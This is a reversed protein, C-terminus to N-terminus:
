NLEDLTEINAKKICIMLKSKLSDCYKNNNKDIENEEEENYKDENEDDEDDNNISATLNIKENFTLKNKNKNKVKNKQKNIELCSAKQRFIDSFYIKFIYRNNVLENIYLKELLCVDDSGFYKKSFNFKRHNYDINPLSIISERMINDLVQNANNNNITNNNTISQMSQGINYLDYKYEENLVFINIKFNMNYKISNKLFLLDNEIIDVSSAYEINDLVLNNSIEVENLNIIDGENKGTEIVKNTDNMILKAWSQFNINYSFTIPNRYLVIIKNYSLYRINFIGIILPLFSFSFNEIKDMLYAKYEVIFSKLQKSNFFQEDYIEFSLLLDNTYYNNYSENKLKEQSFKSFLDMNDSINLSKIIDKVNLNLYPNLDFLDENTLSKISFKIEDDNININNQNLINKKLNSFESYNNLLSEDKEKITSITNSLINNDEINKNLNNYIHKKFYKKMKKDEINDTIEDFSFKKSSILKKKNYLTIKSINDIKEKINYVFSNDRINVNSAIGISKKLNISNYTMNFKNRTEEDFSIISNRTNIIENKNNISPIVNDIKSIRRGENKDLESYINKNTKFYLYLLKYIIFFNCESYEYKLSGNKNNDKDKDKNKNKDIREDEESSEESSELSSSSESISENIILEKIDIDSDDKFYSNFNIKDIQNKKNYLKQNNKKIKGNGLYFNYNKVCFLIAFIKEIYGIMNFDINLLMIGFLYLYLIGFIITSYYYLDVYSILNSENNEETKIKELIFKIENIFKTQTHFIIGPFNLLIDCINKYFYHKSIMIIKDKNNEFKKQEINNHSDFGKRYDLFNKYKKSIIFYMIACIIMLSIQFASIFHSIKIDDKFKNKIYFFSAMEIIIIGLHKIFYYPINYICNVENSNTKKKSNNIALLLQLSYFINLIFQNAFILPYYLFIQDKIYAIKSNEELEFYDLNKFLSILLITLLILTYDFWHITVLFNRKNKLCLFIFFHKELLIFNILYFISIIANIIIKLIEM